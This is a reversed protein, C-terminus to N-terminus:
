LTMWKCSKILGAILHVLHREFKIISSHM